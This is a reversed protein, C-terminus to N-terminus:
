KTFCGKIKDWISGNIYNKLQKETKTRKKLLKQHKEEEKHKINVDVIEKCKKLLDNNLELKQNDYHFSYYHADQLEILRIEFKKYGISYIYSHYFEWKIKGNLTDEHLKNITKEVLEADM